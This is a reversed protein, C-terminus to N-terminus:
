TEEVTKLTQESLTFSLLNDGIYVYIGVNGQKIVEFLPTIIDKVENFVTLFQMM